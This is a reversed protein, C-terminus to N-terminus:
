SKATVVSTMNLEAIEPPSREVKVLVLWGIEDRLANIHSGKPGVASSPDDCELFILESLAPDAM